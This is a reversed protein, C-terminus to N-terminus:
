EEVRMAKVVVDEDDGQRISQQHFPVRPQYHIVPPPEEGESRSNDPSNAIANVKSATEGQSSSSSKSVSSRRSPKSGDQVVSKRRPHHGPAAMSLRRHKSKNETDLHSSKRPKGGGSEQGATIPQVASSRRGTQGSSADIPTSIGANKFKPDVSSARRQAVARSKAELAESVKWCKRMASAIAIIIFAGFVTAGIAIGVLSFTGLTMGYPPLCWRNPYSTKSAISVRSGRSVTIIVASGKSREFIWSRPISWM